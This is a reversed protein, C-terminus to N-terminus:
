PQPDRRAARRTWTDELVASMLPIYVRWFFAQPEGPVERTILRQFRELGAMRQLTPIPWAEAYDGAFYFVRTAGEWRSLVAPFRDPLGLGRLRERGAPLLPLHYEALVETGPRPSVLDFWYDYRADAPLRFARLGVGLGRFRLGRNPEVEVGEALVEVRDDRNVLLFGPGDYAWPRGRQREWNRVAWGPVEGRRDLSTFFRLIWGEWRLGFLAECAERVPAETPDAFLNFEGVLTLCGPLAAQLGKLEPLRLGGHLLPSREGNPRGTFEDRYVGYTDALYILEPGPTEHVPPRLTWGGGSLPVFGAYDEERSFASGGPKQFKRHNLLWVLGAHERRTIDPVTKDVILVRLERAPMRHWLLFPAAALVVAGLLLAAKLLTKWRPSGNPATM